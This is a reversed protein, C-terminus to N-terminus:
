TIARSVDPFVTIEGSEVTSIAGAANKIQVDYVVRTPGDPFSRTALPPIVVRMTGGTASLITVGGLLATDLAIVALNDADVYNNKATFWIKAGTLLLPAGTLPDTLSLDFSLTDGRSMERKVFKM